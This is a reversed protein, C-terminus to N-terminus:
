AADVKRQTYKEMNKVADQVLASRSILNIVKDNIRKAYSDLPRVFDVFLVARYSDTENWVEHEYTDDFILSEGEAWYGIDDGVRIRVKDRPEPVILGLHYRLVGAYPGRHPPIHKGPALISFFATTLGPITQLLRATEPCRKLNDEVQYGYGHLFFTKWKGPEADIKTQDPSVDIFNPIKDRDLMVQDLEKRILQWNAEINEVWDFQSKDFFTRDGVLSKKKILWELGLYSHKGLVRYHLRLYSKLLNKFMSKM